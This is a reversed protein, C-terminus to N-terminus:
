HNYHLIFTLSIPSRKNKQIKINIKLYNFTKQSNFGM